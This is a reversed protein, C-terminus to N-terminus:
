TTARQIMVVITWVLFPIFSAMFIHNVIFHAFLITDLRAYKRVSLTAQEVSSIIIQTALSLLAISSISAGIIYHLNFYIVQAILLITLAYVNGNHTLTSIRTDYWQVRPVDGPHSPQPRM